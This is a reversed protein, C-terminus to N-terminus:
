APGRACRGCRRPVAALKRVHEPGTVTELDPLDDPGPVEKWTGGPQVPSVDFRRMACQYGFTKKWTPTANEKESHCIVITADIDLVLGPIERGAAKAVPFAGRTDAHQAWAIERAAARATRLRALAQEDIGDLVRWATAASAVPGFLEAQDRLVALDSITEGGDALMAALHVAVQGPDHGGRRQRSSALAESFAGTLGTAEALDVLLRAGAHAVM